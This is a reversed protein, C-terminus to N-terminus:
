WEDRVRRQIELGDLKSQSLGFLSSCNNDLDKKRKAILFDMFDIVEEVCDEPLAMMKEQLIAYSM